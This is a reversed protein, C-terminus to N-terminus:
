TQRVRGPPPPQTSGFLTKERRLMRPRPQGRGHLRNTVQPFSAISNQAPACFSVSFGREVRHM